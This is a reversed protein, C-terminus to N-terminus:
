GTNTWPQVQGRIAGAFLAVARAGIRDWDLLLYFTVIPILILNVLWGLLKLGSLKAGALAAGLWDGVEQWHATVSQRLTEPDLAIPRGLLTELRPLLNQRLWELYQPAKAAFAALQRQAGPVLFFLAGLVAAISLIFILVVAAARPIRWGELRDVLPDAIYALLAGALFPTLIPALLYVLGGAAAALVVGGVIRAEPM